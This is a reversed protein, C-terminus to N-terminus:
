GPEGGHVATGDIWTARVHHASPDALAVALPRDLLCLDAPAGVELRRPPGGPDAPSSLLRDLAAAPALAETPGISAGGITVLTPM